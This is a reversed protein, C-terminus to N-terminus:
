REERSRAQVRNCKTYCEGTSLPCKSGHHCHVNLARIHTIPESRCKDQSLITFTRLHGVVVSTGHRIHTVTVVASTGHRINTLTVVASTGHRINTLTVVASTGHRIRRLTGCLCGDQSSVLPQTLAARRHKCPVVHSPSAARQQNRSASGASHLM